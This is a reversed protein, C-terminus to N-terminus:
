KMELSPETFCGQLTFKPVAVDYWKGDLTSRARLMPSKNFVHREYALYKSEDMGVCGYVPEPEDMKDMSKNLFSAAALIIGATLLAVFVKGFDEMVM